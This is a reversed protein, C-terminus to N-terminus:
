CGCCLDWCRGPGSWGGRVALSRRRSGCLGGEAGGGPSLAFVSGWVTPLLVAVGALLGVTLVIQCLGPVDVDPLLTEQSMAPVVPGRLVASGAPPAPGRMRALDSSPFM